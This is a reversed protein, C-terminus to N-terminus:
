QTKGMLRRKSALHRRPRRISDAVCAEGNFLMHILISAGLRGTREYCYGMVVALAFLPMLAEVGAVGWPDSTIALHVLAFLFSAALIGRWPGGLVRRLATQLLGRYLVEEVVPAVVFALGIALLTEVASVDGELFELLEHTSKVKEPLIADGLLFLGVCIPYVALIGFIGRSADTFWRRTTLGLGRVIGHRFGFHAAALAVGLVLVMLVYQNILLDATMRPRTTDGNFAALVKPIFSWGLILLIHGYGLRNPRGPADRLLAKRSDTLRRILWVVLVCLGMASLTLILRQSPSEPIVESAADVVKGAATQEALTASIDFLSTM